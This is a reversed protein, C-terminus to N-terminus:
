LAPPAEKKQGATREQPTHSPLVWFIAMLAQHCTLVPGQAALYGSDGALQILLARRKM